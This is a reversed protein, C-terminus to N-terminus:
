QDAEQLPLVQRSLGRGAREREFRREGQGSVVADPDESTIISGRVEGFGQSFRQEATKEFRRRPPGGLRRRGIRAAAPTSRHRGLELLPRNPFTEGANDSPNPFTSISALSLSNPNQLSLGYLFHILPVPSRNFPSFLSCLLPSILSPLATAVRCLLYKYAVTPDPPAKKTEPM